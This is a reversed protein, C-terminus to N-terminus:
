LVPRNLGLLIMSLRNWADYMGQYGSPIVTM